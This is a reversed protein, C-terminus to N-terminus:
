SLLYFGLSKDSTETPVFETGVLQAQVNRVILKKTILSRRPDDLHFEVKLMDGVSMTEGSALKLKLGNSSLDVVTMAGKGKPQGDVYHVFSGKLKVAKRYVRRKEILSSFNHGCACKIKIQLPQRIDGYPALDLVKTRQCRDCRIVVTNDKAIYAIKSM